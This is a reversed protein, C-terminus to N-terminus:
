KSLQAQMKQRVSKLHQLAVAERDRPSTAGAAQCAAQFAARGKVTAEEEKNRAAAGALAASGRGLGIARDIWALPRFIISKSDASRAEVALALAQDILGLSVWYAVRKSLTGEGRARGSLIPGLAGILQAAASNRDGALILRLQGKGRGKEDRKQLNLELQKSNLGAPKKRKNEFHQSFRYSYSPPDFPPPCTPEGQHDGEVEGEAQTKQCSVTSGCLNASKLPEGQVDGRVGIAQLVEQGRSTLTACPLRGRSRDLRLFGEEEAKVLAVRWSKESTGIPRCLSDASAAQLLLHVLLPGLDLAARAAAQATFSSNDGPSAGRPVSTTNM